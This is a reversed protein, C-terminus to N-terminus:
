YYLITDVSAYDWNSDGDVNGNWVGAITNQYCCCPMSKGTFNVVAM